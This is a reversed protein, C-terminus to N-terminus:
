MNTCIRDKIHRDRNFRTSFAANCNTCKYSDIENLNDESASDDSVDMKKSTDNNSVETREVSETDSLIDSDSDLNPTQQPLDLTELMRYIKESCDFIISIIMIKYKTSEFHELFHNYIALPNVSLSEKCLPCHKYKTNTNTVESSNEVSNVQTTEFIETGACNDSNVGIGTNNIVSTNNEFVDLAATQTNECLFKTSEAVKNPTFFKLIDDSNLYHGTHEILTHGEIDTVSVEDCLNCSWSAIATDM